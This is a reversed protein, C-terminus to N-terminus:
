AQWGAADRTARLRGCLAVLRALAQPAWGPEWALEVLDDLERCVSGVDSLDRDSLTPCFITADPM